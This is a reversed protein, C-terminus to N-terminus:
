LQFNGAYLPKELVSAENYYFANSSADFSVVAKPFDFPDADIEKAQAFTILAADFHFHHDKIGAEPLATYITIIRSVFGKKSIRIDYHTNKRLKFKFSSKDNLTCTEVAFNSQILEVKYTNNIKGELKLLKGDIELGGPAEDPKSIKSAQLKVDLFFLCLVVCIIILNKM